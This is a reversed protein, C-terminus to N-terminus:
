ETSVRAPRRLAAILLIFPFLTLFEVSVAWLNHLNFLSPVFTLSSSDRWIDPLFAFPAIYYENSSPWFLPEGYPASTDISFYDLAIHSSYLGFFIAFNRGTTEQTRLALFLSFVVAFLLAFGISHSIGHHYRNPDGTLLGLILDLDPANAAFVYLAIRQWQQEEAPSATARHIIYGMLSHGLPSPM